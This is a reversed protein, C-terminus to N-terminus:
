RLSRLLTGLEEAVPHTVQRAGVNGAVVSAMARGDRALAVDFAFPIVVGAAELTGEVRFSTAEDGVGALDVAQVVVDGVAVEEDEAQETFQHQLAEQVCGEIREDDLYGFLVALEDEDRVMGVTVELTEQTGGELDAEGRSFPASVWSATEGPLGGTDGLAEELHQCASSRFTLGRGGAGPDRDVAYGAEVARGEFSRVAARAAAADTAPDPPEGGAGGACGGLVAMLLLLAASRAGAM